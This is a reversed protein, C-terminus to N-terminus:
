IALAMPLLVRLRRLFIYAILVDNDLAIFLGKQDIAQLQEVSFRTTVFGAQKEQASLNDVLYLEQL